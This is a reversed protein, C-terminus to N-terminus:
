NIRMCLKLEILDVTLNEDLVWDVGFLEIMDACTDRQDKNATVLFVDDSDKEHGVWYKPTHKQEINM